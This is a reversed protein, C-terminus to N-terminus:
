YFHETKRKGTRGERRDEREEKREHAQGGKEQFVLALADELQVNTLAGTFHGGPRFREKQLLSTPSLINSEKQRARIPEIKLRDPTIVSESANPM